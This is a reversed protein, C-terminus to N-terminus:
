PDPTAVETYKSKPSQLIAGALGTGRSRSSSCCVEERMGSWRVSMWM